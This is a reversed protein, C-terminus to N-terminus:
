VRIKAPDAEALVGRSPYPLSRTQPRVSDLHVPIHQRPMELRKEAVPGDGGNPLSM